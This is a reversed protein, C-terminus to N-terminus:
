RTEGQLPLDIIKLRMRNDDVALSISTGEEVVRLRVYGLFLPCGLKPSFVASTIRGVPSTDDDQAFIQADRLSANLNLANLHEMVTESDTPVIPLENEPMHLFAPQTLSDPTDSEMALGILTWNPHGRFHMRALTEQGLYCGKEYNVLHDLRSEKPFNNETVDDGFWPLGNEVRRMNWAVRGCPRGDMGFAAQALYDRIRGIHERPVIFHFGNEGSVTDRVVTVPMGQYDTDAFGEMPLPGNPFLRWALERASPGEAAVVGVDDSVDELTVDDAIIHKELSEAVDDKNGQAVVVFLEAERRLVVLEAVLKGKITTKAAHCLGGVELSVIDNTVMANLFTVRDSGTLRLAGRHTLDILGVTSVLANYELIPHSFVEPYQTGFADALPVGDNKYANTFM